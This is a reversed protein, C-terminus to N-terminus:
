LTLAGGGARMKRAPRAKLTGKGNARADSDRYFARM